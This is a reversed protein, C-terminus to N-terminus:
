IKAEQQASVIACVLWRGAECQVTSVTHACVYRACVSVSLQVHAQLKNLRSM